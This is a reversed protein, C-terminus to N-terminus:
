DHIEIRVVHADDWPYDEADLHDGDESVIEEAAFLYMRSVKGGTPLVAPEAWEEAYGTAESNERFRRTLVAHGTTEVLAPDIRANRSEAYNYASTEVTRTM